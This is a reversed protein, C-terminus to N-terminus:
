AAPRPVVYFLVACYHAISGAMVFIHWAAHFFRRRDMTFFIVGLTYALGGAALWLAGRITIAHTLPRAAFVIFWGLCLYIVASPVSFRTRTLSKFVVGAIALIWVVAFLAWGLTGRLSVLTFPTYTGAIFLYIASHDLVHFFHRARTRVLAHYLTSCLYVFVLTLAFIGCGVIHWATGRTSLAVLYIGGALALAAGVGHTIVNALIDALDLEDQM